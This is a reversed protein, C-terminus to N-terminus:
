EVPKFGNLPLEHKSCYAKYVDVRRVSQGTQWTAWFPSGKLRGKWHVLVHLHGDVWKHDLVDQVIHQGEPLSHLVQEEETTREMNFPRMRTVHVDFWNGLTLDLVEYGNM